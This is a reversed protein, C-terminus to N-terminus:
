EDDFTYTGVSFCESPQAQREAFDSEAFHSPINSIFVDFFLPNNLGIWSPAVPRFCRTM